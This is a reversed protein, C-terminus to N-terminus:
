DRILALLGERTQPGLLIKHLSGDPALLYSAPLVEPLQWGLRDAPDKQLVIFEISFSRSAVVLEPLPLDDYNVGLVLMEGEQHLQNLEPIEVRCPACWTAWYNVLLWKGRLESLNCSSGNVAILDARGAAEAEGPRSLRQVCDSKHQSEGCGSLFVACFM